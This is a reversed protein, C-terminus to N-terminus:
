GVRLAISDARPVPAGPRVALVIGAVAALATVLLSALFGVPTFQAIGLLLAAWALWGPVLRFAIGAAAIALLVLGFGGTPGFQSAGIQWAQLAGPDVHPDRGLEALLVCTAANQLAVVTQVAVGVLVAGLVIPPASRDRLRSWVSVGFVAGLIAGVLALYGGATVHGAHTDYYAPLDGAPTSGEPFPGILLNGGLTLGAFLVGSLPAFRDLAAGRRDLSTPLTM